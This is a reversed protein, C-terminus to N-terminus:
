DLEFGVPVRFDFRDKHGSAPPKPLPSAREIMAAGEQDLMKHGTSEDIGYELLRGESDIAFTLWATGQYGRLQARRPYNKHRRLWDLLRAGYDVEDGPNGGASVARARDGPHVAQFQWLKMLVIALALTCLLAAAPTLGDPM